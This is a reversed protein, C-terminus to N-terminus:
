VTEEPVAIHESDARPNSLTVGGNYVFTWRGFTVCGAPGRECNRFVIEFLGACGTSLEKVAKRQEFVTYSLSRIRSSSMSSVSLITINPVIVNSSAPPIVAARRHAAARNEQPIHGFYRM